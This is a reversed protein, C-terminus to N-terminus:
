LWVAAGEEKAKALMPTLQSLWLALDMMNWVDHGQRRVLRDGFQKLAEQKIKRAAEKDKAKGKGTLVKDADVLAMLIPMGKSNPPCHLPIKDETFTWSVEGEVGAQTSGTLAMRVGHGLDVEGSVERDPLAPPAAKQPAKEQQGASVMRAPEQQEQQQEQQQAKSGRRATEAKQKRAM